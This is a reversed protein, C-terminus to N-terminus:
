AYELKFIYDEIVDKFHITDVSNEYLYNIIKKVFKEDLSINKITEEEAYGNTKTIIQIGWNKKGGFKDCTLNYFVTKELSSFNKEYLNKINM